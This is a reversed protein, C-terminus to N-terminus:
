YITCLVCMVAYEGTFIYVIKNNDDYRFESNRQITHCITIYHKSLIVKRCVIESQVICYQILQKRGKDTLWNYGCVFISTLLFVFSFGLELFLCTTSALNNRDIVPKKKYRNEGGTEGILGFWVLAM